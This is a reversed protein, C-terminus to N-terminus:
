PDLQVDIRYYHQPGLREVTDTYSSIPYPLFGSINTFGNTLNSSWDVGYLRGTMSEWSVIFPMGGNTPAQFSDIAFFSAPDTPIHGSIYESLNDEGDGDTDASAVAGTPDGYYAIEWTNPLGDGDLDPNVPVANTSLGSVLLSYYQEGDQLVGDYDVTITYAGAEPAAIYVQEVNDVDNEAMATANSAPHDYDLRYPYATGGPGVIRLDLDNVLVPTRSDHMTQEPGPPDTWCLTARIANSGDSQYTFTELMNTPSLISETMRVANGDAYDRILEAAALTNMLGWGYSYDPGPNGWDDATHIILGKLTSARMANGPFRQGFYDVLLTASGCANPTAMSTGSIAYYDTNSGNFCSFLKYGNAVIDPKIRGDDAPGWSSFELMAANVLARANGNTADDVAGVTLINKATAEASINDYGGKYIGDGLPDQTEDYSVATWKGVHGPGLPKLYYVSETNTPNDSRDNGAAVFPLFYPANYVVADYNTAGADYQGFYIDVEGPGWDLWSPWQYAPIGGSLNWTWGGITGYSHNSLYIKGPEGPYSAAQSLMEAIDSNWDYSDIHVAPAMGMANTVIGAAGITGGVHTSHYHSPVGDVNVVRGTLEQHSTMVSGGDWIGVTLGSGDANYPATNRVLDSATSIAADHNKTAYYIPRGHRIAMLEMVHQGNDSRMPVGHDAAWHWAEEKERQANVRARQVAEARKSPNDAFTEHRQGQVDPVVLLLASSILLSGTTRM